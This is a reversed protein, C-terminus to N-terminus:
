PAPATGGWALVVIQWDGGVRELAFTLVGKEHLTQRPGKLTVVGPVVEYARNGEALVQTPAGLKMQIDALGMREGNQQMATLWDSGARPGHWRFPALDETISVDTALHALAKASDGKNVADVFSAISSAVGKADAAPAARASVSMLVALAAIAVCKM